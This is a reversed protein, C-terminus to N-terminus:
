YIDSGINSDLGWAKSPSDIEGLTELTTIVKTTAPPNDSFPMEGEPPTVGSIKEVVGDRGGGEFNVLSTEQFKWALNTKGTIHVQLLGGEGPM